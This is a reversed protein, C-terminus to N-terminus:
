HSFQYEEDANIVKGTWKDFIYYDDVKMYRYNSLYLYLCVLISVFAIAIWINKKSLINNDIVSKKPVIVSEKNTYLSRIQNKNCTLLRGQIDFIFPYVNPNSGLGNQRVLEVGHLENVFVDRKVSETSEESFKNFTGLYNLFYDYLRACEIQGLSSSNIMIESVCKDSDLMFSVKFTPLNEYSLEKIYLSRENQMLGYGELIDIATKLNCGLSVGLVSISGYKSIRILDKM